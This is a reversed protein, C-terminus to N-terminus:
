ALSSVAKPRPLDPCWLEVPVPQVRLLFHTDWKRGGFFRQSDSRSLDAKNILHSNQESTTLLPVSGTLPFHFLNPHVHM